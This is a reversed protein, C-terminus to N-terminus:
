IERNGFPHKQVLHLTSDTQIEYDAFTMEDQLQKGHFLLFLYEPPIGVKDQLLIKAHIITNSSDVDLTIIRGM